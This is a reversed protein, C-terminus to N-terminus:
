SGAGNNDILSDTGVPANIVIQILAIASPPMPNTLQCTVVGAAEGCTAPVSSNVKKFVSGPPLVDEVVVDEATQLGISEVVVGYEITAGSSVPDVLDV